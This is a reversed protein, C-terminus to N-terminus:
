GDRAARLDQMRTEVDSLFWRSAGGATGGHKAPRPFLGKLIDRYLSARSRGLRRCVARVDILADEHAPADQAPADHALADAM